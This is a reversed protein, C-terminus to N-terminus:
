ALSKLSTFGNDGNEEYLSNKSHKYSGLLLITTNQMDQLIEKGQRIVESDLSVRTSDIEEQEQKSKRSRPNQPQDVLLLTSNANREIVKPSPRFVTSACDSEHITKGLSTAKPQEGLFPADRHPYFSAM